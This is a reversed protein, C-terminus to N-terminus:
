GGGRSRWRPVRRLARRASWPLGSTSAGKQRKGAVLEALVPNARIMPDVKQAAFDAAAPRQSPQVAMLRCPLEAIGHGIIALMCTTKGSQAGALLGVRRTTPAEFVDLIGAQYPALNMPLGERAGDFVLEARAFDAISRPRSWPRMPPFLSEDGERALTPPGVAVAAGAAALAGVFERRSSDTM